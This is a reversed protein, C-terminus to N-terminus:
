QSKHRNNSSLERDSGYKLCHSQSTKHLSSTSVNSVVIEINNLELESIDSLPHSYLELM